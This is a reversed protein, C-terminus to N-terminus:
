RKQVPVQLETLLETQPASEPSIWWIERAPGLVAYGNKHIWAFLAKFTEDLGDYGGKHYTTAVQVPDVVKIGVGGEEPRIEKVDETIQWQIEWRLDEPPVNRPDDFYIGTCPGVLTYGQANVWERLDKAGERIGQYPGQRAVFAVKAPGTAKVFMAMQPKEDQEQASASLAVLLGLLVPWALRKPGAM